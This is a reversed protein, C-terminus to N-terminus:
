VRDFVGSIMENDVVVDFARERWLPVDGEPKSLRKAVTENALCRAVEDVVEPMAERLAEIKALTTDDAWEIQEFVKHVALGFSIADSGGAAFLQGGALVVSGHVSARRGALRVHGRKAQVLGPEVAPAAEAMSEAQAWDFSGREFVIESPVPAGEFPRSDEEALTEYLLRIYNLSKSSPKHATSVVYLGHSARTLGVYLKCFNEYCGESRAEALATGLQDDVECIDKGPLSLIWGADGEGTKHTHLADKRVEDLRSGEIDPLITADFTLGKAKHVTMVQVVSAGSIDAAEQATVFPVFEDIDR